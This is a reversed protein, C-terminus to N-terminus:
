QSQDEFNSSRGLGPKDELSTDGSKSHAFWERCRSESITDEGFFENLDHLSQAAKWGKGFHYLIIHPIHTRNDVPMKIVTVVLQEFMKHSQAVLQKETIALLKM